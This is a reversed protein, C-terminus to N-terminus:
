FFQKLKEMIWTLLAISLALFGANASTHVTEHISHSLPALVAPALATWKDMKISTLTVM